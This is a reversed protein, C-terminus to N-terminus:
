DGHFDWTDCWICMEIVVPFLINLMDPDM